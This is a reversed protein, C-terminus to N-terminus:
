KPRVALMKQRMIILNYYQIGLSVAMGKKAHPDIQM